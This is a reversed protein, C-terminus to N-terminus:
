GAISRSVSFVIVAAIAAAYAATTWAIVRTRRSESTNRFSLLWALGPLVLIGHM